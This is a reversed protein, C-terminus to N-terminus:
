HIPTLKITQGGGPKLNAVIVDDRSVVQERVTYSERNKVYHTEPTDEAISARYKQDPELFELEVQVTRAEENNVTAVLYHEGTDRMMSIYTDPDGGLTKSQKWPMTQSAMFDMLRPHNRYSDATDPLITLGSYIILTRAAESVVTSYLEAFMKPREAYSKELDFMGNNMDLPGAVMNVFAQSVLASPPSTRKADSQAHNFERAIFHPWRVEEGTPPIPDDHFFILLKEQGALKVIKHTWKVKEAADKIHMFGYKVGVAGWKSYAKLIEGIGYRKAAVHNLYLVLGVGRSKGYDIAQRVQDSKGGVFPDAKESFEPGYWNADITLYPVGEQAALDIFRKWSAFSQDYTFDKVRHGMARWDWFSVGPKVWSYDSQSAKENLNSVLDSDILDGASQGLMLVRWPMTFPTQVRTEPFSVNVISSGKESSLTMWGMGDLAAETLGMYRRSATRVVLPYNRKGRLESLRHPGDPQREARYTWSEHDGAFAFETLEGKLEVTRPQSDDPNILYRFAVGDDYVRFIMEMSKIAAHERELKIALGSFSNRIEERKGWVPAWTENKSFQRVGKVSWGGAKSIGLRSTEIRVQGDVFVRYSLLGDSVKVKLEVSKDPSMIGRTEYHAAFSCAPMLVLVVFIRLLHTMALERM